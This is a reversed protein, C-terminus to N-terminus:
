YWLRCRESWKKSGTGTVLASSEGVILAFGGDAALVGEQLDAM